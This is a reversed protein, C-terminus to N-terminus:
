PPPATTPQSASSRRSRWADAQADDGTAEYLAVLHGAVASRIREMPEPWAAAETYADLLMKEAEAYRKLSLLTGGLRARCKVIEPGSGDARRNLRELLETLLPAADAHKDQRTLSEALNGLTGLTINHDDGLRLRSIRLADRYLKEAEAPANQILRLTGLSSLAQALSPHDPGQVRRYIEVSREICQACEDLKGQKGLTIGLLHLVEAVRTHDDGLQRRDIDLARRLYSEAEELRGLDDLLSGVDSLIHAVREHDTGFLRELMALAERFLVLAAEADGSTERVRAMLQLASAFMDDDVGAARYHALARAALSEAGPLDGRQLRVDGLEFCANAVEDGAPDYLAENLKLAQALHAEAEEYRGLQKYVAGITTHISAQAEPEGELERELRAAADDMMQRLLRTEVDTATGPDVASLMDELFKQIRTARAAQGEAKTQQDAAFRRAHEAQRYLIFMAVASGAIALLLATSFTAAVRHRRLGKRLVYWHSDRKAEIPEGALYRRVDRALEGASQYRREPEKALCKLVITEIEDDLASQISRPRVPEVHIINNLVDPLSAVVSYPFDGTLMQYLIVGLAYVDTRTDILDTRGAAQEPSAWPLSGIFQGSETLNRSRGPSTRAAAGLDFKALGFDLVRPEGEEDIRINGPKLDRHIVGRLHAANVADCIKVFLALRDDLTIDAINDALFDDLADGAVYDMVLYAFGGAQGRDHITVINPHKLRSLADVEREFRAREIADALPGEKLVKVAVKRRTSEQLAQYVVGQGGRHIEGLIRYGAFADPAIPPAAGGRAGSRAGKAGLSTPINNFQRWAAEVLEHDPDSPPPQVHPDPTM